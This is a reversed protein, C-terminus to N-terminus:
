VTIKEEDRDEMISRLAELGEVTVTLSGVVEASQGVDLVDLQTEMLDQQNELIEPIRLSAVGVEECDREQEEEEPPESVVTFRIREMQPNRGQLVERLLRRRPGSNEADVPIVKSYNFNISKGRPPKPLSLPTEETPLDLFAYEVFLRVVSSDQSVRSEPSLNLSVVEVRMRESPKRGVAVGEVIDDDSNSQPSETQDKLAALPEPVDQSIEESIQSDDSDSQTSAPVLQGESIHSEEEVDDDEEETTSRPAKSVIQVAAPPTQRKQGSVSPVESIQSEPLKDAATAEAFTVKKAAAAERAKTKQRLKPVPVWKSADTTRKEEQVTQLDKLLSEEEKEEEQQEEEVREEQQQTKLNAMEEEWKEEHEREEAALIPDLHLLYSSKWKLTVKIHGAPLGSPNTLDFVGSVGQDQTLSLLPVRAKGLYEEMREEKYDFVYFRLVESKLYQDLDKNMRVSYSKLDDFRPNSCDQVTATPYDPFHFFKYVVYPSPQYPGRSQLDLCSHVSIFLHNWSGDALDCPGSENMPVPTQKGLESNIFGVAALREQYLRLTESVPFKLRLWYDLSGFSRWEESTGVLPVSGHVRGDQELLPQLHLRTTALTRWELGLAHHLEVTVWSRRLYDLLCEDMTVVYRSTFGYRPDQGMVVPTSHPDFLYFSYTCFTSPQDHGLARLATASLSARVLQLELLNEGRELQISEDLGGTGDDEDSLVFTKTGYAVDRLQAELKKIKAARNDLLEAQRELKQEYEVKDADMKRLALELEAKYDRSIRSELSLLNRTKELEQIIEAHTARFEKIGDDSVSSEEESEKLFGLDSIRQSKRKKILLLAETLEAADYNSERSYMKLRDTLEEVQQKQELFQVHLKQNEKVLKENMEREAKIKNLIENKDVLDAKLAVELQSIQLKLQQEQLQWKQQQSVDFASNLLKQNNDKLLDREQELDSIQEQLQQASRRSIDARQLKEELGLSRMREKKLEASLEDVKAMAVDHSAKLMQQSQQLQLFRGELETVADAHETLQKQQRIMTVNSSVQSRLKFVHQQRTERLKEEYEAEKRRLEERVLEVVGEQEAMDRRQSEIMNQLNRIEARAEELLSHGYRPLQGTLPRSGGGDLSRTSKFPTQSPSSVNDRLRKLGSNVRPQVHAYLPSRQGRSNILQQKAVLLRRKLGENEVQLGRVKEQLEEMAEEMEVDRVPQAERGGGGVALQEMRARDKMLRVLKTGLKKIKDDQKNIHQKLQLTEESLRLFRDELEERSVRSVDQWARAHQHASPDPLAAPLRALNVTVDRVPVDAATEDRVASM